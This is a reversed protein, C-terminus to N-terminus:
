KIKDCVIGRDHMTRSAHTVQIVYYFLDDVLNM